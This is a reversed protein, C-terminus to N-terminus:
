SSSAAPPMTVAPVRIPDIVREAMRRFFADTAFGTLFGTLLAFPVLRGTLPSLRGDAAPAIASLQAVVYLLGAVAGAACGLAAMLWVYRPRERVSGAVQEWLGRILSASTGAIAPAVVLATLLMTRAVAADWTSVVLALSAALLTLGVAAEISLQRRHTRAEDEKRRKQDRLRKRQTLLCDVIDRAWKDSPADEAMLEKEERTIVGDSPDILEWVKSGSGGYPELAILPAQRSTAFIGSVFTSQAGGIIILGDVTYLSRYFSVEWSEHQSIKFKFCGPKTKHEPFAPPDGRRPYIVHISEPAAHDSSAYGRVVHPELFAANGSFVVIGCGKDALARGILAAAASARTVHRLGHDTRAEDLGGVIAIWCDIM